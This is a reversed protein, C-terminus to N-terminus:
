EFINLDFEEMKEIDHKFKEICETAITLDSGKLEKNIDIALKYLEDLTDAGVVLSGVDKLKIGHPVIFMQGDVITLREFFFNDRYKEPVDVKQWHNEAWDSKILLEMYYRFRSKPAVVNGLATEMYMEAINEYGYLQTMHPPFPFRCTMDMVFSKKDKGIRVENSFQCNYEFYKLPEELKEITELLEKPFEKYSKVVALYAQDKQECGGMLIDSYKGSCTFPDLGIEVVDTIEDESIIPIQNCVAGFEIKLLDLFDKRDEYNEARFTESNARYRGPLKVYQTVKVTKLYEILEDIGKLIKHKGVPLGQQKLVKKLAIRDLELQEGRGSGFVNCGLEKLFDQKGADYVWTFIFLDVPMPEGAMKAKYCAMIYEDLDNIRTVGEIGVGVQQENSSAFGGQNWSSWYLVTGFDRTLWRALETSLENDVILVTKDPYLAKKTAM